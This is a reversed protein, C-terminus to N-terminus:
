HKGGGDNEDWQSIREVGSSKGRENESEKRQKKKQAILSEAAKQQRRSKVNLNFRATARESAQARTKQWKRRRVNESRPEKKEKEM